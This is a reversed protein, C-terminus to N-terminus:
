SSFWLFWLEPCYLINPNIIIDLPLILKKQYIERGFFRRTTDYLCALYAVSKPSPQLRAVSIARLDDNLRRPRLLVRIYLAVDLRAPTPQARGNKARSVSKIDGIRGM